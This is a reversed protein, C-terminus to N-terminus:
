VRWTKGCTQCVAQSHIKSRIKKPKFIKIILWPLTLFLWMILELWWGIFLWYIVGHKKNKVHTVAQVNVNESGCKLCKM